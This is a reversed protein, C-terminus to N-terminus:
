PFTQKVGRTMCDILKQAESCPHTVIRVREQGDDWRRECAEVCSAQVRSQIRPIEEEDYSVEERIIACM